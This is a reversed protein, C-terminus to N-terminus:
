MTLTLQPNTAKFGLVDWYLTPALGQGPRKITLNEETFAEGRKIAVRAVLSKRAIPITKM